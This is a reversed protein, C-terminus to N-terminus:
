QSLALRWADTDHDNHNAVAVAFDDVHDAVMGFMEDAVEAPSRRTGRHPLFPQQRAQEIM